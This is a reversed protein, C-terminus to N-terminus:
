VQFKTLSLTLTCPGSYISEMSDAYRITQYILGEWPILGGVRILGTWNRSRRPLPQQTM